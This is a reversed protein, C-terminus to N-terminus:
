HFVMGEIHFGADVNLVEGTIATAYDSAPVVPVGERHDIDLPM